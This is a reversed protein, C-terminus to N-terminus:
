ATEFEVHLVKGCRVYATAILVHLSRASSSRTSIWRRSSDTVAQPRGPSQQPTHPVPEPESGSVPPCTQAQCSSPSATGKRTKKLCQTMDQEAVNCTDPQYRWSLLPM